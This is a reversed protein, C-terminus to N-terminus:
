YWLLVDYCTGIIVMNGEWERQCLTRQFTGKTACHRVYDHWSSFSRTQRKRISFIHYDASIRFPIRLLNSFLNSRSEVLIENGLIHHLLWFVMIRKHSPNEVVCGASNWKKITKQHDNLVRWIGFHANNVRLLVFTEKKGCYKVLLSLYWAGGQPTGIATGLCAVLLRLCAPTFQRIQQQQQKILLSLLWKTWLQKVHSATSYVGSIGDPFKM